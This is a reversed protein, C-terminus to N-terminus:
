VNGNRGAREGAPPARRLRWRKRVAAISPDTEIADLVRLQARHVEHYEPSIEAPQGATRFGLHYASTQGPGRDYLPLARVLTARGDRYLRAADPSWPAIDWLGIVTFMFGNLVHSPPTTPYEEFFPGGALRRKLGGRAVDLTLPKVARRAADLYRREGTIRWTRVLLSIGQGQAMASSWPPSLTVGPSGGMYDVTYTFRYPWRGDAAQEALLWRAARLTKERDDGMRSRLWRGYHRLGYQSISTPNYSHGAAYGVLPLGRPDLIVKPRTEFAPSRALGMYQGFRDYTQPKASAWRDSRELSAKEPHDM